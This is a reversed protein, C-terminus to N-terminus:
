EKSGAGALNTALWAFAGLPRQDRGALLRVLTDGDREGENNRRAPPEGKAARRNKDLKGLGM